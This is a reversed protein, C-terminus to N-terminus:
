RMESHGAMTHQAKGDLQSMPGICRDFWPRLHPRSRIHASVGETPQRIYEDKLSLIARMVEEGYSVATGAGRQWIYCQDRFAYGKAVMQLYLFVKEKAKVTYGDHLRCEQQLKQLLLDFTHKPMRTQQFFQGPHGDALKRARQLGTLSSDRMRLRRVIPVANDDDDSFLDDDVIVEHMVSLVVNRRSRRSM